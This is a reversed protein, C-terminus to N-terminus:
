FEDDDFMFENNVGLAHKVCEFYHKYALNIDSFTQYDLGYIVSYIISSKYDISSFMAVGNHIDAVLQKM